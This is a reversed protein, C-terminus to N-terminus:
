GLIEISWWLPWKFIVISWESEYQGTNVVKQCISWPPKKVPPPPPPPPPPNRGGLRPRRARKKTDPLQQDNDYTLVSQFQKVLLQAKEKSDNVLQGMKKLPSVDVSDQRRIQVYRWFPKPNNETLGKQIVNNIHSIDAKKFAKKCTKQFAKFSGWQNSKKAHKYLRTKRRVM